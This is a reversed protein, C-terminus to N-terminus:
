PEINLFLIQRSQFFPYIALSTKQSLFYFLRILIHRIQGTFYRRQRGALLLQQRSLGPSISSRNPVHRQSVIRRGSRIVIWPKRRSKGSKREPCWMKPTHALIPRESPGFRSLVVLSNQSSIIPVHPNRIHICGQRNFGAHSRHIKLVSVQSPNRFHRGLPGALSSHFSQSRLRYRGPTVSQSISPPSHPVLVGLSSNTHRLRALYPLRRLRIIRPRPRRSYGLCPPFYQHTVTRSFHYVRPVSRRRPSVLIAVGAQPVRRRIPRGPSRSRPLHPSSGRPKVFPPVPAPASFSAPAIM